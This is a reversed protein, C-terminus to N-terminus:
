PLIFLFHNRKTLIFFIVVVRMETSHGINNSVLKRALYPLGGWHFSPPIKKKLQFSCCLLAYIYSSFSHAFLSFPLCYQFLLLNSYFFRVRGTMFIPVTLAEPSLLIRRYSSKVVLTNSWHTPKSCWGKIDHSPWMLSIFLLLKISCAELLQLNIPFGEFIVQRILDHNRSCAILHLIFM